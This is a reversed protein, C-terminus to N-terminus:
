RPHVAHAHEEVIDLLKDIDFPKPVFEDEESRPPRGYASMLVVATDRLDTDSRIRHTLEIGDMGPLRVDTLVLDPHLTEMCALAAEATSVMTVQCGSERLLLGLMRLVGPEDDVILITRTV